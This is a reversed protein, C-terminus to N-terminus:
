RVAVQDDLNPGHIVTVEEVYRRDADSLRRLPVTTTRGSTKLIRIRGDLLEILRGEIAFSGTNDSWSRVPLSSEAAIKFPDAFPDDTAPKAPEAPKEAAPAAANDAPAPFLDDLTAKDEPKEAPKEAAPAATKVPESM